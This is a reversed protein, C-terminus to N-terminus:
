HAEFLTTMMQKKIRTQRVSSLFGFFQTLVPFFAFPFTQLCTSVYIFIFLTIGFCCHYISIEIVFHHGIEYRTHDKDACLNLTM